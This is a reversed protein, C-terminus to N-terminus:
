IRCIHSFDQRSLILKLPIDPLAMEVRYISYSAFKHTYLSNIKESLNNIDWESKELCCELASSLDRGNLRSGCWRVYNVWARDEAAERHHHPCCDSLSCLHRCASCLPLLFKNQWPASAPTGHPLHPSPLFPPHTWASCQGILGIWMPSQKKNPSQTILANSTLRQTKCFCLCHILIQM